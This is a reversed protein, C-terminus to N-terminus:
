EFIVFFGVPVESGDSGYSKVMFDNNPATCSGADTLSGQGIDGASIIGANNAFASAVGVKPDFTLDFCFAHDDSADSAVNVDPQVVSNVGSSRSPDLGGSATVFAYGKATGPAGTAGPTGDAGDTGDRGPPGSQGPAGAPGQAGQSGAPLQGARFDKALLSRNKVDASKISNNRIQASGIQTAAYASGGLAVFLAIYGVVTAHSPTHALLKRM